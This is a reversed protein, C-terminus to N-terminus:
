KAANLSLQNQGNMGQMSNMLVKLDQLAQQERSLDIDLYSDEDNEFDAVIHEEIKADDDNPASDPIAAGNDVKM